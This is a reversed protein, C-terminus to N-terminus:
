GGVAAAGTQVEWLDKYIGGAVQTLEDHTGTEAIRGENLVYIIDAHRVTSLRHAIIILTKDHSLRNINEQIARETQTDVASTAEDLIMLPADKLIARALSLRQRQGGSLKIGREGILTDYGDPLSEVFEHLHAMRSANVISDFSADDRGYAVNERISGHFLYVDQNVVSLLSRWAHLGISDLPADDVRISGSTPEYLRSLLKILTTKGAGTPGVIGVSQGKRVTFDIDHLVPSEAKYSFNVHDFRVTSFDPAASAAQQSGAEEEQGFISQIRVISARAREFDDLIRGLNTVPWLLRQILMAYLAVDGLSIKGSGDIVWYAAMLLGIAFGATIFVRIVPVYAANLGVIRFNDDRYRSSATEVRDREYTEANFLKVVQIGSINNELRSNMVGITNRMKRYRPAVLKQYLISGGIIFPIPAFGILALELNVSVLAASAFVFIVVIQLIENFSTNLFRELQNVDDNLIALTNGLRNNEFYSQPLRQLKDYLDVRVDHQVKQAIRMFGLKFLWEFFSELLFIIVTLVIILSVASEVSDFGRKTFIAPIDSSLSDVLWGVLIPPMLDLVKNLISNTCATLFGIKYKGLYTRLLYM